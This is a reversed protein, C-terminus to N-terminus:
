LRTPAVEFPGTVRFRELAAKDFVVGHGPRQPPVAVGDTVEFPEVLLGLETLTGGEIDELILGNEIGCLAHVSLESMYHPAMPVGHGSALAAVRMWETFGGVRAIDPQLIDVAGARLYEAVQFRSYLTEGLAIPTSVKARVLANGAPEDASVPEEMWSPDFQELASTRRVADAGTWKQNADLFLRVSPGITKRALAIREIDEALDDRGVKVKVAKYGRDIYGTLQGALADGELHLNLGSGYAPISERTGGLLRYLPTDHHKGAADWLAIDIASIALSTMGAAGIAHLEAFCREWIGTIREADAGIILPRLYIDILERIASGGMGLTYTWGTGTVGTDTTIEVLVFEWTDIRQIADQLKIVSPVRLLDVRLDTITM